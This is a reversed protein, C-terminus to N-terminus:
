FERKPRPNNKENDRPFIIILLGDFFPRRNGKPTGKSEWCQRPAKQPSGFGGLFPALFTALQHNGFGFNEPCRRPKFPPFPRTVRFPRSGFPPGPLANTPTQNNLHRFVRFRVHVFIETPKPKPKPIHTTRPTSKKSERVGKAVAVETPSEFRGVFIMFILAKHKTVEEFPTATFFVLGSM